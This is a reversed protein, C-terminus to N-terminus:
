VEPLGKLFELVQEPVEIRHFGSGIRYGCVPCDQGEHTEFTWGLARQHECEAKADNLHYVKWVDLFDLWRERDWGDLFDEDFPRFGPSFRPDDDKPNRHAFEIDIQGGGGPYSGSIALKEGDWRIVCFVKERRKDSNINTLLPNITKEFAEM